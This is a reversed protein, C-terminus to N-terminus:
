PPFPIHQMYVGFEALPPAYSLVNASSSALIIPSAPRAPVLQYIWEVDSWNPSDLYATERRLGLTERVNEKSVARHKCSYGARLQLYSPYHATSSLVSFIGVDIEHKAAQPLPLPKGSIEWGLTTVEVSIWAEHEVVGSASLEFYSHVGKRAM